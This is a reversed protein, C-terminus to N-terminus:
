SDSKMMETIKAAALTGLAVGTAIVTVKAAVQAAAASFSKLTDFM